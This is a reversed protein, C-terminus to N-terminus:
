PEALPKPNATPPSLARGRHDSRIVDRKKPQSVGRKTPNSCCTIRNQANAAPLNRHKDFNEPPDEPAPPGRMSGVARFWTTSCACLVNASTARVSPAAATVAALSPWCTRCRMHSFLFDEDTGDPDHRGRLICRTEAM